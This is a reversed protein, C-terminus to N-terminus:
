KSQIISPRQVWSLETRAVRCAPRNELLNHNISPIPEYRGVGWFTDETVGIIIKNGNQLLTTRMLKSSGAKAALVEIMIYM